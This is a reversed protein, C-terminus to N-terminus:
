QLGGEFGKLPLIPTAMNKGDTQDVVYVKNLKPLIKEITELYIRKRTVEPYKHYQQLLALFRHAEGKAQNVRELAYGEAEQIAQRAQGRAMPVEKNYQEQAQLMLSEKQQEAENVANFAAKVSDPPNVDQFRVTVIKVGIDYSDLIEQIEEQALISLRARGLTLIESVNSDGAVQRTVAESIDRITTVPDNIHFLYKFPDAIRYQVIYELDTVNLDGTLMLSEEQYGRKRYQTKVGPVTMRFGFEETMVRGTKVLYVQDIGFPLKFRLGPETTTSFKGLRIVVGREDTDVQYFSSLVGSVVMLLAVVAIVLMGMDKPEPLKGYKSKGAIEADQPANNGFQM